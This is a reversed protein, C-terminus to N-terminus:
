LGKYARFRRIPIESLAGKFKPSSFVSGVIKDWM